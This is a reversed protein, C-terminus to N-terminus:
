TSWTDTYIGPVLINVLGLEYTAIESVTVFLIVCVPVLLGGGGDESDYVM